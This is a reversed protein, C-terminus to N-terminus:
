TNKEQAELRLTLDACPCHRFCFQWAPVERPAFSLSSYAIAHRDNQESTLFIATPGDSGGIIGISASGPVDVFTGSASQVDEACLRPADPPRVDRLSTSHASLEPTVTYILQWCHNPMELAGSLTAERPIELTQETLSEAYLMHKEGSVPHTFTINEGAHITFQPGDIRDDHASLTADLTRLLPRRKTVWAYHFRRLTWGCTPDLDYHQIAALMADDEQPFVPNWVISSSQRFPLTKGNACLRLSFDNSLPNEAACQAWESASLASVDNEPSLSWKEYFSRLKESEVRTLVDLVLGKGCLYAAPIQLDQGNWEFHRDLCVETGSRGRPHWFGGEFCVRWIEKKRM